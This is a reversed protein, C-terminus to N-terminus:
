QIQVVNAGASATASIGNSTTVYIVDSGVNASSGVVATFTLTTGDASAVINSVTISTERAGNLPVFSVSTAGALNQGTVTITATTGRAFASPSIGNIVPGTTASVTPSIASSLNRPPTGVSVAVAPSIASSPNRATAGVSVAVAPSIASSLNRPPTGIAVAVAPSIASSLSRPPTGVSVAVAPSIASSLNRPPAGVSVAIAPSIASSLSRPPTGVSVAIAPSIASYLNRPPAGVSVAVSPGRVQSAGPNVIATAQGVVSPDAKSTATVTATLGSNIGPALYLGTADITGVSSNGGVTGNVAWTVQQNAMGIVSAQFKVPAGPLVVISSPVVQVRAVVTFATATTLTGRSGSLTVVGTTAGNPVQATLLNSSASLVQAATGNFSVSTVTDLGVGTFVVQDGPAGQQPSFSLLAFSTAAISQISTINGVADYTYVAAQGDPAIVGILRGDSDYVYRVPAQGSQAHLPGGLFIGVLIAVTIISLRLNRLRGKNMHRMKLRTGKLFRVPDFGILIQQSPLSRGCGTSSDSSPVPTM